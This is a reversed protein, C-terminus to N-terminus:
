RSHSFVSVIEPMYADVTQETKEEMVKQILRSRERLSDFFANLKSWGDIKQSFFAFNSRGQASLIRNIVPNNRCYTKFTQESM